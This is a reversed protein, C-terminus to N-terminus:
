RDRIETSPARSDAISEREVTGPGRNIPAREEEVVYRGEANTSMRKGEGVEVGAPPLGRGSVRVAGESVAVVVGTTVAISLTTGVVRVDLENALFDWKVPTAHRVHAALAGTALRLLVRGPAVKEVRVRGGPQVRVISGDAFTIAVEDAGATVEQGERGVRGDIEFAVQPARWVWFGMLLAISALSAGFALPMWAMTRKPSLRSVFGTRQRSLDGHQAGDGIEDALARGFHEFSM